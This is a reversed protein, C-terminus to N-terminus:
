HSDFFYSGHFGMLAQFIYEGMQLFMVETRGNGSQLSEQRHMGMLHVGIPQMGQAGVILQHCVVPFSAELVRLQWGEILCEQLPHVHETRVDAFVVPQTMRGVQRREIHTQVHRRTVPRWLVDPLLHLRKDRVHRQEFQLWLVLLLGLALFEVFLVLM